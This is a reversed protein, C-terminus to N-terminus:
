FAMEQLIKGQPDVCILQLQGGRGAGGDFCFRGPGHVRHGQDPVVGSIVRAYGMYPEKMRFFDPHGWWFADTQLSLPRAPDLGGHVFLLQGTQTSVARACREFYTKAGSLAWVQERVSAAFQAMDGAGGLCAGLAQRPDCSFQELLQDFGHAEFMWSLVGQPDPAMHLTYFRDFLEEQVGRLWVLSDPDAMAAKTQTLQYIVEASRGGCGIQSGLLIIKDGPQYAAIIHEFAASLLDAAGQVQALVWFRGGSPLVTIRRIDAM